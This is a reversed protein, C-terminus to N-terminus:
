RSMLIEMGVVSHDAIPLLWSTRSERISERQLPATMDGDAIDWIKAFFRQPKM